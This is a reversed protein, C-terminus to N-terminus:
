RGLRVGDAALSARWERWRAPLDRWGRSRVAEACYRTVPRWMEPTGGIVEPFEGDLYDDLRELEEVASTSTALAEDFTELARRYQAWWAAAVDRRIREVETARRDGLATAQQDLGAVLREADAVAARTQAAEARAAELDVRQGLRAEVAAATARGEATTARERARTLAAAADAREGALADLAAAVARLEPRDKISTLAETAKGRGLLM